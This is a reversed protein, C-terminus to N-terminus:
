IYKVKNPLDDDNDDDDDEEFYATVRTKWRFSWETM